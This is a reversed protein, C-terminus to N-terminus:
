KKRPRSRSPRDSRADKSAIGSDPKFLRELEAGVREIVPAWDRQATQRFLRATPYWPSDERSQLWRWDPVHPLLVWVPKGVAGALHAVATDVTIVLDLAEILAAADAFDELEEGMRLIASTNALCEEDSARVEKQLSIWQVPYRLMPLLQQLAISRELDKSHTNRGSWVLGVAPAHKRARLRDTWRAEATTDARLYRVPAPISDLETGLALPVSMLPCHFDFAPITTSGIVEHVGRLSKFLPQLAKPASLIVRAGLAAVDACFRSFQITDGYGQEAHLLVIKGRVSEGGRWPPISPFRQTLKLTKVRWRSEYHKWGEGLEGRSLEILGKNWLAEALSPNLEVARNYSATAEDYRGLDALTAGRSNHAEPHRPDRRLARESCELAEEYRHLRRLLDARNVWADVFEPRARIAHEYDALAEPVRALESLVIGRNNFAQAYGPNLEIAKTFGALAAHRQGLATYAVGCNYHSDAVGGDCNIAQVYSQIAEAHRSMGSLANGYHNHVVASEPRIKIARALPTLAEEFRRMQALAVGLYHLGDFQDPILELIRRYAAIAGILEGGNHLDLARQLLGALDPNPPALSGNGSPGGAERQAGRGGTFLVGTQLVDRVVSAWDGLAPQRFLRMSPYWPSDRRELLWRWCSAYRNMLWVPKGLAGALHAVASDVTIVVDLNDVLAATDAFDGLQGGWWVVNPLSILQAREPDSLETHLCIFDANLAFLPRIADLTMDRAHNIPPFRRGSWVVGVRLRRREGLREAWRKVEDRDARLYPIPAPVTSPTTDFALPLSMLPCHYDHAPIPEGESVIQPSGPLTTLLRRLGVPTAVVVRAGLQMVLPAYRCFQLTDGFGQEHHLLITKGVVNRQRSWLPALRTLRAAEHPFLKWRSEFDRFGQRWDGLVMRVVARNYVANPQHPNLSLSQDYCALAERFQGSRGYVVGRNTIADSYGPDIALVAQFDALADDHRGLDDLIMGRTNLANRDAPALSVAREASDLADDRRDLQHLLFARKVLVDVRNPQIALVRDFTALAEDRRSLKGLMLARNCLEGLNSPDLELCRDICALSEALRGLGELARAKYNYLDRDGPCRSLSLDFYALAKAYDNRRFHDIGQSRLSSSSAADSAQMVKEDGFGDVSRNSL